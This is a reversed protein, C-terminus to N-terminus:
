RDKEIDIVRHITAKFRRNSMAALQEGVNVVVTDPTPPVSHWQGDLEIELGPYDFTQLLTLIGSDQHPPTSIVAFCYPLSFSLFTSNIICERRGDPLYAGQPINDKRKPYFLPRLTHGPVEQFMHDFFDPGEAGAEAILELMLYANKEMLKYHSRM